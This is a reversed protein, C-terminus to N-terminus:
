SGCQININENNLSENYGYKKIIKKDIISLQDRLDYDDPLVMKLNLRKDDMRKEFVLHPKERMVILSIYKPLIPENKEPYINKELDDIIKNAQALKEQISIKNSKTTTWIKDLKPHKEVKFFERQKTHEKDLWEQYYVVYKKLMNQTIDKPLDKANTKREKKTGPAIGKSNLEQEKRTVIRLNVLTNNLPDRDIHDVSINTTGKGNGYCGMIIQHIYLIKNADIHSQIYGNGCKYFTLKKKNNNIQEFDLMKQYSEQCLKILTGKECYMLLYFKDNEIIKWIPNKIVYADQGLTSYHGEIYEIFKYNEIITKHIPPYIEVNCRRIDLNNGNKFNYYKHDPNFKFIFELYSIRKYNTGYSPYIDNESTFIFQKNFNIINDKDDLDMLYIKNFYRIEGCMLEKNYGYLPKMKNNHSTFNDEVKNEIKNNDM